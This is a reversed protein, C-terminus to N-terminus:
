PRVSAESVVFDKSVKRLRDAAVTATCYVGQEPDDQIATTCCPAAAIALTPLQIPGKQPHKWFGFYLICVPVIMVPLIRFVLGMTQAIGIFSKAGELGTGSM